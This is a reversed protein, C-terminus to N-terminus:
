SKMKKALYRVQKAVFDATDLNFGMEALETRGDSLRRGGYTEAVLRKARRDAKKFFQDRKKLWQREDKKLAAKEEDTSQNLVITYVTNLLSDVAGFQWLGLDGGFQTFDSNTLTDIAELKLFVDARHEVKLHAISDELSDAGQWRSDLSDIRAIQQIEWKILPHLEASKSQARILGFPMLSLAAITLITLKM